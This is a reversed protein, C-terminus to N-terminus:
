NQRASRVARIPHGDSRDVMGMEYDNSYFDFYWARASSYRATFLSSSWYHGFIGVDFLEGGNWRCFGAAPLFLVAGNKGSFLLGEVGKWSKWTGDTNNYLEEWQEKTPMCWGSGWNAMAADDEPQLIILSDTFGNYGGRSDHCYKTTTIEDDKVKCYKYNYWNYTAKPKTEGWAFYDGFEEPSNAGVNCTAWLTGSPLGLDVYEHGNYSSYKSVKDNETSSNLVDDNDINGDGKVHHLTDVPVIPPEHPNSYRGFVWFGVVIGVIAVVIGAIILVTKKKSSSAVKTGCFECFVSDNTIEEGCRKCKM